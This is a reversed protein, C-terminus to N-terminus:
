NYQEFIGTPDQAFTGNIMALVLILYVVKFARKFGWFTPSMTKTIM